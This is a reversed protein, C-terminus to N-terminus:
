HLNNDFRRPFLTHFVPGSESSLVVTDPGFPV